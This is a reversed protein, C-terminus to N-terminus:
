PACIQCAISRIRESIPCNIVPYEINNIRTKKLNQGQPKYRQCTPKNQPRDESTKVCLASSIKRHHLAQFSDSIRHTQHVTRNPRKNIFSCSDIFNVREARWSVLWICTLKTAQYSAIEFTTRTTTENKEMRCIVHYILCYREPM